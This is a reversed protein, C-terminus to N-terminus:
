GAISCVCNILCWHIDIGCLPCLNHPYCDNLHPCYPGCGNMCESTNQTTIATDNPYIMEM